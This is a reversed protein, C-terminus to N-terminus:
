PLAATGLSSPFIAEMAHSSHCDRRIPIAVCLSGEGAAVKWASLKANSSAKRNESFQYYVLLPREAIGLYYRMLLM